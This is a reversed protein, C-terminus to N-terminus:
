CRGCWVLADQAWRLGYPWKGKGRALAHWHLILSMPASRLPSLVIVDKADYDKPNERVIEKFIENLEAHAQEATIGPKLRAVLQLHQCGRCAFPQKLDYGLPTYIEPMAIRDLRAFPRFSEPLVGVVKYPKDNLRVTRGIISPDGGFRRLWLGHTLIAEYRTEPQDEDSHFERGLQMNVGLTDFYDYNVRLGELLEPQGQELIAVDGDRFLSISEFSKSRERLDRTTPFDITEPLPNGPASEAFKVLRDPDRFPLQNLLVAKVVSFIAANQGIGLALTLVVITAYM